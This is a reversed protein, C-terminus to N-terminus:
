ASVSLARDTQHLIPVIQAWIGAKSWRQYRSAITQWPGYAAPIERWPAGTRMMWLMGEVIRRHDLAPRGTWPKQPPLLPVLQTWVADTLAATGPVSVVV